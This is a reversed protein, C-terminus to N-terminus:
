PFFLKWKFFIAAILLFLSTGHVHTTAGNQDWFASQMHPEGTCANFLSCGTKKREKFFGFCFLVTSWILLIVTQHSSALSSKEFQKIFCILFHILMFSIILVNKVVYKPWWFGDIVHFFKFQQKIYKSCHVVVIFPTTETKLERWHSGSFSWRRCM